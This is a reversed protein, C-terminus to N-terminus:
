SAREPWTTSSNSTPLAAADGRWSQRFPQHHASSSGVSSASCLDTGRETVGATVHGDRVALGKYCNARIRGGRRDTLGGGHGNTVRGAGSVLSRDVRVLRVGSVGV